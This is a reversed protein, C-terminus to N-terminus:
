KEDSDGETPVHAIFNPVVVLTMGMGALVHLVTSLQPSSAGSEMRAIVPQKVGCRDALAKQSLGMTKRTAAIEAILRREAATRRSTKM